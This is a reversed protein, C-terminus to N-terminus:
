VKYVRTGGKAWVQAAYPAAGNPKTMYYASVQGSERMARAVNPRGQAEETDPTQAVIIRYTQGNHTILTGVPLNPALPAPTNV